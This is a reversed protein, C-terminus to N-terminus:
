VGGQKRSGHSSKESDAGRHDGRCGRKGQAPTICVQLYMNLSVCKIIQNDILGILKEFEVLYGTNSICTYIQM